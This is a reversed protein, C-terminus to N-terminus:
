LNYRAAAFEVFRRYIELRSAYIRNVMPTDDRLVDRYMTTPCEAFYEEKLGVEGVASFMKSIIGGKKPELVIGYLGPIGRRELEDLFRQLLGSFGGKFRGDRKLNLHYHAPFRDVPIAPVERWSKFVLWRIFRYTKLRRYRLTVIGWTLKLVIKPLIKRKMIKLFRASDACGLLYGVVEGEREVVFSLDAEYELYYRTWYDAFLQGDEFFLAYGRNRYATERCIQRVQERDEPRYQRITLGAEQQTM